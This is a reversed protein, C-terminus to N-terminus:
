TLIPDAGHRYALPVRLEFPLSLVWQRVRV